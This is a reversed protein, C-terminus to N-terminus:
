RLALPLPASLDIQSNAPVYGLKKDEQSITTFSAKQLYAVKLLENQQRYYGTQNQIDVLKIGGNSINNILSIRAILEVIVILSLFVIIFIPKKM